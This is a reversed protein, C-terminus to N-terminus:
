EDPDCLVGRPNDALIIVLSERTVDKVIARLQPPAQEPLPSEPEKYDSLSDIEDPPRLVNRRSENKAQEWRRHDEASKERLRHDAKTLPKVVARLVPTKTKGPPAVLIMFLLPAETWGRKVEINVSQGIAAGAVALMSAGVFDLPVLMADAVGRCYAQLERPFVEVPFPLASHPKEIQLPPWVAGSTEPLEELEENAQGDLFDPAIEKRSMKHLEQITDVPEASDNNSSPVMFEEFDEDTMEPRWTNRDVTRSIATTDLQGNAM